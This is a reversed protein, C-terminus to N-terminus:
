PHPDDQRNPRRGSDLRAKLRTTEGFFTDRDKLPVLRLAPPMLWHATNARGTEALSEFQLVAQATTGVVCLAAVAAAKLRLRTRGMERLHAFCVVALVVWVEVYQDTVGGPWSLAFAAYRALENYLAFVLIGGLAILLNRLFRSQGSFVRCLLAWLGAWVFVTLVLTLLPSLYTSVRPETTQALWIKLSTIALVSLGLLAAALVSGNQRGVPAVRERDVEYSVDRVRVYTQGILIPQTGDVAFDALRIRSGHIFTGNVSGLDEAALRGDDSRFVRLHRAAVYPDDVVVDNDYGRGIRAEQAAIRFRAVVERQRSLIEIWIM